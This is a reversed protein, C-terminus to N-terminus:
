AEVEDICEKVFFAWSNLELAVLFGMGPRSPYVCGADLFIDRCAQRNEQELVRKLPVPVHGHIITYSQFEPTPPGMSRINLMADRDLYPDTAKFNLGAHVLIIDDFKRYYELTRIFAFYSESIKGPSDVGFDKLTQGGGKEIFLHFSAPNAQANLLYQEHNGMLLATEPLYEKLRIIYDLTKKSSPGKNIYDGLLYLQDDRGPQLIEELLYRFTKYCGHIDAIVFRKRM